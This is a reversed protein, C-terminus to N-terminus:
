MRASEGDEGPGNNIDLIARKEQYLPIKTMIRITILRRLKKTNLLVFINVLCRTIIKKMIDEKSEKELTTISM